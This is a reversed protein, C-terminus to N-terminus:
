AGLENLSQFVQKLMLPDSVHYTHYLEVVEAPTYPFNGAFKYANLLGAVIHAGLQYTDDTGELQIVQMMTRWKMVGGDYYSFASDLFFGKAADNFATGDDGYSNFSCHPGSMGDTCSGPAFGYVSWEEPHQGWYGPTLGKYDGNACPDIGDPRVSLNGSELGSMTCAQNVALASRSKTVLILPAGILGAKALRRRSQDIKQDKSKDQNETHGM